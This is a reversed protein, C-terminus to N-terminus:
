KNLKQIAKGIYQNNYLYFHMQSLVLYSLMLVLEELHEHIAVWVVQVLLLSESVIEHDKGSIVVEMSLVDHFHEHFLVNVYEYTCWIQERFTQNLLLLSIVLQYVYDVPDNAHDLSVVDREELLLDAEEEREDPLLGVIGSRHLPVLDDLQELNEFDPVHKKLFLREILDLVSELKVFLYASTKVM